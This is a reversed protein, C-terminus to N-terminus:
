TTLKHGSNAWATYFSLILGPCCFLVRQLTDYQKKFREPRQVLNTQKRVVPICRDSSVTSIPVTFPCVGQDNGDLRSRRAVEDFEEATQVKYGVIGSGRTMVSRADPDTLSIHTEGPAEIEKLAAMQSKVAAIKNNLRASRM